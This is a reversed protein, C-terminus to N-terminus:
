PIAKVVWGDEDTYRSGYLIRPNYAAVEAALADYTAKLRTAAQARFQAETYLTGGANRKPLAVVELREVVTGERIAQLDAATPRVDPDADGSLASDRLPPGPQPPLPDGNGDVGPDPAVWDLNPDRYYVARNAPVPLWFVVRFQRVDADEAIRDLITVRRM